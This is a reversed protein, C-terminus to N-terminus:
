TVFFDNDKQWLRLFLPKEKIVVKLFDSIKYSKYATNNIYKETIQCDNNVYM